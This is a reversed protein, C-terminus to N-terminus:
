SPLYGARSKRRYQLPSMGTMKKFQASLYDLHCYGCEKAIESVSLDTNSLYIQVNRIRINNLYVSYPVGLQAHFLRSFHGVSFGAHCAVEDISPRRTCHNEMFTIAKSIQPLLPSPELYSDTPLHEELITTFLRFLMGQLIFEKYPTSSKYVSFMDLLIERIKDQAQPAFHYVYTAYLSKFIDEGLEQIFPEAFKHSFKIMIREYPGDSEAITRHLLYPPALAVDGIGYCYSFHPTITRRRGQLTMGVNYHDSAMQLSKMQYHEEYYGHHVLIQQGNLLPTPM